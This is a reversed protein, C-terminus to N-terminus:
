DNQHNNLKSLMYLGKFLFNPDAFIRYKLQRAFYTAQGGTLVVNFRDYKLLYREIIGELESIIGFNVGSQISTKTNYGIFPTTFDSQVFPLNATHEHMSQFRMNMGPSISGGLFRHYQNIFNYTICTGISIVLNNTEPFLGAAAAALTLRDAGVTLPKSIDITFNLKSDASVQHFNSNTQLFNLLQASPAVVSALITQNFKYTDQLQQFTDINQDPLTQEHIMEGNEYVAAKILTNGFDLCLTSM